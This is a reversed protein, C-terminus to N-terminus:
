TLQGTVFSGESTPVQGYESISPQRLSTTPQHGGDNTGRVLAIIAIVFIFLFMGAAGFASGKAEEVDDIGGIFFPQKVLMIGVWGTFVIGTASYLACCKACSHADM